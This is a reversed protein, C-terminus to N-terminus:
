KNLINVTAGDYLQLMGAIVIVENEQVGSDIQILGDINKGTTVARKEVTNNAKVIFVYKDDNNTVIADQPVIIKESYDRTWLKIKAFMGANIRSDKQTFNLIVEKTRSSSDLVPSIRVVTASFNIGPYAELSIDAKQGIALDSVYREPIKVTIQLNDIDGITTIVSNTTIKSNIKLPSSLISGSIPATVPSLAYYSGPESPDIKAIVDGQNVHSGLSINMEVIKGGISPFVEISSQTEVDGSAIVFDTITEYSANKTNVSYVTSSTRKTSTKLGSNSSTEGAPNLETHSGDRSDSNYETHSVKESDSNYETHSVKESDSNYETHSGDRSDSNFGPNRGADGEPNNGTHSDAGGASNSPMNAPMSSPMGGPFNSTKSKSSINIVLIVIFTILIAAIVIITTRLKSNNNNEKKEEKEM